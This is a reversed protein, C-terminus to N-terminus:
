FNILFFNFAILILNLKLSSSIQIKKNSNKKQPWWHKGLFEWFLKALIYIFVCYGLRQFIIFWDGYVFGNSGTDNIDVRGSGRGVLLESTGSTVGKGWIAGETKM